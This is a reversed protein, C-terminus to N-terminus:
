IIRYLLVMLSSLVRAPIHGLYFVFKFKELYPSDMYFFFGKNFEEFFFLLSLNKLYM